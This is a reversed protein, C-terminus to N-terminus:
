KDLITKVKNVKGGIFAFADGVSIEKAFEKQFKLPIDIFKVNAIDDFAILDKSEKIYKLIAPASYPISANEIGCLIVFAKYRRMEKVITMIKEQMKTDQLVESVADQGSIVLLLLPESDMIEALSTEGSSIRAKRDQLENYIDEIMSKAESMDTTYNQVCGYESVGELKKRMDDVIYINSLSTFINNQITNIVNLLFNTKGSEERGTIGLVGNQLLNLYEIRMDAFNMGYPIRYKVDLIEPNSTQLSKMTIIDPVMPIPRAKVGGSRQNVDAVYSRMANVRDIEREGEFALFIQAEMIQHNIEVLARGPMNDPVIRTRDFLSSYEGSDNCFLAIRQAFNALYKYGIGNTQNNVIVISLGVTTGERCLTLLEESENPYLQQLATMNDIMLIIQPLDTFGAELYAMFSSVGEAALREKRKAVEDNLMKFLNVLREEDTSIVVGGVHNLGELNKLVMSGFDIVYVNVQSSSYHEALDRIITQLVNTKGYQASGIVMLNDESLNINVEGQYQNAPDDYYGISVVAGADMKRENNRQYKLLHPLSPLCIDPLKAIKNEDCYDHVYDVIAELQTRTKEDDKKRKQVYVPTHKGALSVDFLAFENSVSGATEMKESSGSYASQFLEFIENNGVQLYARGAEKIEAALPSKLVENSDEQSQVKLCLKFRSNSWIQENVQGSPKQTALILHVGLSRGIRAASILEKMFEPQEAKLEAFEDVIVILHPLPISVEGDRYKKIYKDIHNVDADAFLRQRKELEAKISMLSRDIEKGDINTIAGLLHPLDRFQNVMGGGKFDIIVFGVEYPHFLTAMSLIYTQLIESKGSGTTGAVLGHPGHAKDHLDLSVLGSKSVGLPASMSKFVQSTKWRETLDLDDVAIINLLEFLSINKTLSGELSIEETYIPAILSVIRSFDGDSISSFKFSQSKDRNATDILVASDNASISIIYDCGLPIEEKTESFFVFTVGLDKANDIFKSIPHSKFGYEDYFFVVIRREYKNLQERLVMEKYLYEFILNKSEDDCVINRNGTFQNNLHPLFRMWSIRDSHEPSVVLFMELDTHYHRACIDLAINKFMTYRNEEAGIVGISDALKFDCVIPANTIYRFENSVQEPLMQLEDVELREQKKYRVVRKADASGVGLRVHLFDSDQLRRDFLNPSFSEFLRKEEDNSLYMENLVKLESERISSIEARKSTIYSRYKEDREVLSKEYDKNGQVVTIVATVISMVGSIIGFIIMAGGFIAMIGSAVLMGMSPLLRTLLNTKPKTMKEPPDLIEIAEDNPVIRIRSNRNFKPYTGGRSHDHYTLSTTLDARIETWLKGNKFYFFFDSISFFDGNKVEVKGAVRNGNLYLGYNSHRITLILKDAQNAVEIVDGNVYQSNIKINTNNDSGIIFTNVGSLDIAREYKTKGNDFDILFNFSFAEIDSDQYKVTLTDGHSLSKTLLKRVDGVTLYLNDSCMVTWGSDGKSFVLEIRDFFLSKHLRVDCDVGTGLKIEKADTPLEIEKYINKNSVIIKYRSEM